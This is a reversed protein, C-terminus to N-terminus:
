STQTKMDGAMYYGLSPNPDNHAPLRDINDEVINFNGILMHITSLGDEQWKKHLSTWFAEKENHANPAYVTLINLTKENHWPLCLLLAWGPIIEIGQAEKWSTLQKNLLFAVGKTDPNTDDISSFIHMQGNFTEKLQQLEAASSHSEQVAFVGIQKQRM